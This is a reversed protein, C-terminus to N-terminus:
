PSVTFKKLHKDEFVVQNDSGYSHGGQSGYVAILTKKDFLGQKEFHFRKGKGIDENKFEIYRWDTIPTKNKIVDDASYIKGWFIVLTKMDDTLKDFKSLQCYYLAKNNIEKVKPQTKIEYVTTDNYLGETFDYPEYYTTYYLYKENTMELQKGNGYLLPYVKTAFQKEAFRGVENTEKTSTIGDTFFLGAETRADYGKNDDLLVLEDFNESNKPIIVEIEKESLGKERLIAYHYKDFPRLTTLYKNDEEYYKSLLLDLRKQFETEFDKGFANRFAWMDFRSYALQKRLARIENPTLVSYYLFYKKNNTKYDIAKEIKKSVEAQVEPTIADDGKLVASNMESSQEGIDEDEVDSTHDVTYEFDIDKPVKNTPIFLDEYEDNESEYDPRHNKRQENGRATRTGGILNYGNVFRDRRGKLPRSHRLMNYYYKSFIIINNNAIRWIMM